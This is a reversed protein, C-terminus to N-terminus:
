IERPSLIHLLNSPGEHRESGVINIVISPVTPKEAERLAGHMEFALKSATLKKDPDKLSAGLAVAAEELSAGNDNLIKQLVSKEIKGVHGNSNSEVHTIGAASLAEKAADTAIASFPKLIPM